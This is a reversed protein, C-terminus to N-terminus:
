SKVKLCWLAHMLRDILNKPRAFTIAQDISIVDKHNAALWNAMANFDSATMTNPHLCFTWTGFPMRRFRWLQQPIWTFNQHYFVQPAFGDSIIRISTYNHLVQITTNDFSHGPAIFIRPNIDHQKLLALGSIIKHKQEDVTFGTFESKQKLPVISKKTTPTYVHQFGHLALEWGREKWRPITDTWFSEEHGYSIQKDRNDPIVAVLPQISYLNLLQEAKLWSNQNMQPCADDMRIIYKARM